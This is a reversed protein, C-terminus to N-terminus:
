DHSVVIIPGSSISVEMPTDVTVGNTDLNHPMAGAHSTKREKQEIDMKDRTASPGTSIPTPIQTVQVTEKCSKLGAGM